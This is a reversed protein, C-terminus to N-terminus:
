KRAKKGAASTKKSTASKRKKGFKGKGGSVAHGGDAALVAAWSAQATHDATPDIGIQIWALIGDNINSPNLYIFQAFPDHNNSAQTRAIGDQNNKM